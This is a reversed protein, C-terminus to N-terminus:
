IQLSRSLFRLVTWFLLVNKLTIWFVDLCPMTKRLQEREPWHILFELRTAMVGIWRNIIRSITPQSVGFRYALDQELLGLRLRMLVIIFEQKHTLKISNEDRDVHDKVFNFIEDFIEFSPLDTYFKMKDTDNNVLFVHERITKRTEILKLNTINNYKILKEVRNKLHRNSHKLLNIKRKSSSLEKDKNLIIEELNKIKEKLAATDNDQNENDDNDIVPLTDELKPKSRPTPNNLRAMLIKKHRM